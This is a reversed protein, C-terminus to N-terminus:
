YWNYIEILKLYDSYLSPNNEKVMKFIRDYNWEIDRFIRGDGDWDSIYPAINDHIEQDLPTEIKFNRLAYSASKPGDSWDERNELLGHALELYKNLSCMKELIDDQNADLDLDYKNALIGMMKIKDTRVKECEAEDIKAQKKDEEDSKVKNARDISSKYRSQVSDWNDNTPIFEGLERPWNYSKSKHSRTNYETHTKQVGLNELLKFLATKIATNNTIAKLNEEHVKKCAEFEKDYAAIALDPSSYYAVSNGVWPYKQLKMVQGGVIATHAEEIEICQKYLDEVANRAQKATYDIQWRTM